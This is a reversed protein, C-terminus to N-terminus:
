PLLQSQFQSPFYGMAQTNEHSVRMFPEGKTEKIYEAYAFSNSVASGQRMCSDPFSKM